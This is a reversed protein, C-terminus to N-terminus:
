QRLNLNDFPAWDRLDSFQRPAGAFREAGFRKKISYKGPKPLRLTSVCTLLHVDHIARFRYLIDTVEPPVSGFAPRSQRVFVEEENQQRCPQRQKMKQAIGNQPIHM